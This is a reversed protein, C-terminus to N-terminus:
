LGGAKGDRGVRQGYGDAVTADYIAQFESPMMGLEAAAHRLPQGARVDVMKAIVRRRVRSIAEALESDADAQRVARVASDLADDFRSM